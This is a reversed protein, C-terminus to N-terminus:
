EDGGILVQLRKVVTARKKHTQEWELMDQYDKLGLEDQHAALFANIQKASGGMLEELDYDDTAGIAPPEDSATQKPASKMKRGGVIYGCSTARAAFTPVQVPGCAVTIEYGDEHQTFADVPRGFFVLSELLDGVHVPEPVFFKFGHM